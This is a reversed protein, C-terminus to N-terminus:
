SGGFTWSCVRKMVHDISPGEIPPLGSKPYQAEGINNLSPVCNTDRTTRWWRKIPDLPSKGVIAAENSLVLNGGPYAPFRPAGVASNSWDCGAINKKMDVGGRREFSRRKLAESDENATLDVNCTTCESDGSPGCAAVSSTATIGTVNYGTHTRTCTTQCEPTVTEGAPGTYTTCAVFCDTVTAKDTCTASSPKDDDDKDEGSEETVPTSPCCSSPPICPFSFRPLGPLQFWTNPVPSFGWIIIGSGGGGCNKCGVLVPVITPEFGDSTTTIWTNSTWEPHDGVISPNFDPPAETVVPMMTGTSTATTIPNATASPGPM